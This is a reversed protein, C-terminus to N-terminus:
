ADPISHRYVMLSLTLIAIVRADNLDKNLLQELASLRQYFVSRSLLSLSAAKSRNSPSSLYAELVRLYENRHVAELGLIGALHEEPLRQVSPEHRLEHALLALPHEYAKVLAHQQGLGLECASVAQLISTRGAELGHVADGICLASAFLSTGAASSEFEELVTTADEKSSLLGFLVPRPTHIQSILSRGALQLKAGLTHAARQADAGDFLRIAFGLLLSHNIPLGAAELQGRLLDMNSGVGTLLDELPGRGTRPFRLKSDLGLMLDTGIATAAMTLVHHVGASHAADKPCILSGFIKGHMRIPVAYRHQNGQIHEARSRHQWQDFYGGPLIDVSAYDQINYGPDEFIVTSSLFRACDKLIFETSVGQHMSNTFYDTIDRGANIKQTQQTFLWQHIAETIEVFAVPRHMVILPLDNESCAEVLQTPASPMRASLELVLAAVNRASLAATYHEFNPSEGWGVATTLVLENGRLFEGADLNELIHAWGVSRQLSSSSAFVQPSGALISPMLLLQQVTLQVLEPCDTRSVLSDERVTM